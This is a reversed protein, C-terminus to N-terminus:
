ESNREVADPPAPIASTDPNSPRLFLASVLLIIALVQLARTLAVPDKDGRMILRAVLPAGILLAIGLGALVLM